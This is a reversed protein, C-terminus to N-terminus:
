NNSLLKLFEEENIIKINKGKQILEYAKEEKTSLGDEGVLKKDQTGVILYDTKSSVSSKVNGGIDLIKQLAEKRGLSELEGTLVCNKGFLPHDTNFDSTTAALESFTIKEFRGASMTKKVSLDSYKRKKISSFTKIYKNFDEYRSSSIAAIVINACAEADALSNHHNELPVNFYEACEILSNGCGTKMKGSLSISDIYTFDPITINYASATEHLVSMDFHANHAIIYNSQEFYTSLKSWIGPFQECNEVMEPTIGHIETNEHRFHPSVPKILFYDKKVIQLDKVAVIGVSCASNMNNNATEFDICSFDYM